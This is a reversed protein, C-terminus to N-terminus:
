LTARLLSARTRTAFGPVDTLALVFTEAKGLAERPGDYSQVAEIGEADPLISLLSALQDATFAAEDGTRLATAILEPSGKFRSIAIAMNNATKPDLLQM